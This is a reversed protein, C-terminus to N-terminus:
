LQRHYNIPKQDQKWVIQISDEFVLISTRRDRYNGCEFGYINKVKIKSGISTCNVLKSRISNRDIIAQSEISCSPDARKCYRGHLFEPVVMSGQNARPVTERPPQTREEQYNKADANENSYYRTRSGSSSSSSTSSQNGWESPINSGNSGTSKPGWEVFFIFFCLMLIIVIGSALLLWKTRNM